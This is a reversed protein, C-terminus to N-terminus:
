DQEDPEQPTLHAFSTPLTTSAHEGRIGPYALEPSQRRVRDEAAAQEEDSLEM